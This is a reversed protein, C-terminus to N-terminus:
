KLLAKSSSVVRRLSRVVLAPTYSQPLSARLQPTVGPASGPSGLVPVCRCDRCWVVSIATCPHSAAKPEETVGCGSFM